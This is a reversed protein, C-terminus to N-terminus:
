SLEQGSEVIASLSAIAVELQADDPERTTLKQLWLGPAIAWRLWKSKYHSGSFRLIEYSLGAVLPMALLRSLLRLGLPKLPLFAFVLISITMVILLFATGCRPHLTSFKRTNEVTLELGEEYAFIAKHEAGHYQFVRQIDKMRSIALVYLLFVSMRLIGELINQLVTGPIVSRVLHAAGTPVGVFLLLGLGLAFVVTLFMELPKIEEGEGEAAANASYTLSKMGIVLSDILAVFGRIIPLKLVPYSSWPNIPQREVQISGDPLRVAIAIEKPGRMMVGEILAQGGYHVPKKM